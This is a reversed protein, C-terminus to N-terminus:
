DMRLIQSLLTILAWHDYHTIPSVMAERPLKEINDAMTDLMGILDKRTLKQTLNTDVQSQCLMTDVDSTDHCFKVFIENGQDDVRIFNKWDKAACRLADGDAVSIEGCECIVYDM